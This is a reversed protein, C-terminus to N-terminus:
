MSSATAVSTPIDSGGSVTFSNFSALWSHAVQSDSHFNPLQTSQCALPPGKEKAGKGGNQRTWRTKVAKQRTGRPQKVAGQRTGCLFFVQSFSNYSKYM